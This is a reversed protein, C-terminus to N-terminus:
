SHFQWLSEYFCNGFLKKCERQCLILNRNNWLRSLTPITPRKLKLGKILTCHFRMTTKMQMKGIVSSTSHRTVPKGAM